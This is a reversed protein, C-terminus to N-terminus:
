LTMDELVLEGNEMRASLLWEATRDKATLSCSQPARAEGPRRPPCRQLLRRKNPESLVYTWRWTRDQFYDEFEVQKLSFAGAVREGLLEVQMQRPWDVLMQYWFASLLSGVPLVFFLPVAARRRVGGPLLGLQHAGFAVVIAAPVMFLALVYFGIM